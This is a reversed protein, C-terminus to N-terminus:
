SFRANRANCLFSHNHFCRNSRVLPKTKAPRGGVAVAHSGVTCYEYAANAECFHKYASKKQLTGGVPTWNANELWNHLRDLCIASKTQIYGELPLDPSPTRTAANSLWAAVDKRSFRCSVFTVCDPRAASIQKKLSREPWRM